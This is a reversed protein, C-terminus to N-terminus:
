PSFHTFLRRLIYSQFIWSLHSYTLSHGMIPPDLIYHRYLLQSQLTYTATLEKKTSIPGFNQTGMFFISNHDLKTAKHIPNNSPSPSGASVASDENQIPENPRIADSLSPNIAEAPASVTGTTFILHPSVGGSASVDGQLTNTGLIPGHPLIDGESPSSQISSSSLSNGTPDNTPQPSTLM